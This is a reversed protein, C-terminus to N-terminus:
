TSRNFTNAVKNLFKQEFSDDLKANVPFYWTNILKLELCKVADKETMVIPKKETEEITNFDHKTFPHHDPFIYSDAIQVGARVLTHIFRQPNGIGTVVQIVKFSSLPRTELTVLNVLQTGVMQMLYEGQLAPNGNTIHFDCTKIRETKERLPGAPLCYENGFRREGDIVVIEIDRPMNYHQLGDDSLIINCDSHLQAYRIDAVRDAGAVVPIRTRMALLKAEDGALMVDTSPTVCLPWKQSTGKYGRTIICPQYNHQQLLEALRIILPTKGTGGLSINGVVIIPIARAEPHQKALNKTQKNKRQASLKCFLVSLPILLYRLLPYKNYYWMAELIRQLWPTHQTHKQM